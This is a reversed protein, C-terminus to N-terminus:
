PIRLALPFEIPRGMKFTFSIEEDFPYHTDQQIEIPEQNHGVVTRLTCSGYLTSVLGGASDKMWMRIVYNPLMRHVNGGCCASEHGPNPRYSMWGKFVDALEPNALNPVASEQTAAFQNPSSFYQLGKWDKKLARMGANFCAREIRDGWSGDGTAM